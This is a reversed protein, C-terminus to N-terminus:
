EHHITLGLCRELGALLYAPAKTSLTMPLGPIDRVPKDKQDLMILGKHILPGYKLNRIWDAPPKKMWIVQRGKSDIISNPDENWSQTLPSFSTCNTGMAETWVVDTLENGLSQPESLKRPAGPQQAALALFEARHAEHYGAPEERVDTDTKGTLFQDTPKSWQFDTKDLWELLGNIRRVRGTNFDSRDVTDDSENDAQAAESLDQAKRTARRKTATNGQVLSKRQKKNPPQGQNGPEM